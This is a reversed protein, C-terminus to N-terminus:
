YTLQLRLQLIRTDGRADPRDLDAMVYNFMARAHPGIYWNLGLTVDDLRGASGM